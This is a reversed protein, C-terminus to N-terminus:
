AALPAMDPLPLKGFGQAGDVLIYVDPNMAIAQAAIDDVPQVFGGENNVWELVVVDPAPLLTEARRGVFRPGARAYLCAPARGATM